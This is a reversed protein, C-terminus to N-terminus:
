DISGGSCRFLIPELAESYITTAVKRYGLENLHVGDSSYSEMLGGSEDSTASFLDALPIGEMGCYERILDNVELIKPIYSNFGRVSTMSCAIPEIASRRAKEYMKKLNNFVDSPEKSIYLDNIGGWIIVYDPNERIVQLDFRKLMGWTTDGNVGLNKLSVDVQHLGKKSMEDALIQELFETYPFVDIHFGALATYGVTLSDGIAIFRLSPSGVMFIM